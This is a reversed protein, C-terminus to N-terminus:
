ERKGTGRTSPRHPVKADRPPTAVHRVKGESQAPGPFTRSCSLPPSFLLGEDLSTHTRSTFEKLAKTGGSSSTHGTPTRGDLFNVTAPAGDQGEARLRDERTATKVGDRPACPSIMATTTKNIVLQKAQDESTKEKPRADGTEPRPPPSPGTDNGASLSCLYCLLRYV